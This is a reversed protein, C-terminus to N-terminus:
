KGLGCSGRVDTENGESGRWKWVTSDVERRRERKRRMEEGRRRRKRRLDERIGLSVLAVRLKGFGGRVQRGVGPSQLEWPWDRQKALAEGLPGEGERPKQRGVGEM